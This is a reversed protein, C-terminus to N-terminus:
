QFCGYSIYRLIKSIVGRNVLDLVNIDIYQLYLMSSYDTSDYADCLIFGIIENKNRITLAKKEERYEVDIIEHNIEIVNALNTMLYDELIYKEINEYDPTNQFSNHWHNILIKDEPFHMEEIKIKAM